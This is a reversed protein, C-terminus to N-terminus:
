PRADPYIAIRHNRVMPKFKRGNNDSFLVQSEQLPMHCSICNSTIDASIKPHEETKHCSLCNQSFAAADRQPKHVDHCTTCTMNSSKFCRSRELLQFQNGHVDVDVNPGPDAIFVHEALVDGPVFSLAPAIPTGAGAHCLACVDIQRARPLTVPNIIDQAANQPSYTKSTRHIVHEGGPGHCKECTIGLTLSTKKYENGTNPVAAFSSSHCELCRPKVPRDFRPSGDPYGPSNIWANLETKYSVPLEFLRDGKWFLYTQGKRGSGIVLDMREGHTISKTPSLQEVANQFFGQPTAQMSFYLYPNSTHLVNAGPAFSGHISPKSALSSTLHHSTQLYTSAKENHCSSCAQDGVIGLSQQTEIFPQKSLKGGSRPQSQAIGAVSIFTVFAIVVIRQAVIYRHKCVSMTFNRM